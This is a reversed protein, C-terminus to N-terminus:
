ALSPATSLVSAKSGSTVFRSVRACLVTSGALLLAGVAVHSTAVQINRSTWVTLAGLLFQVFVLVLLVLAPERLRSDRYTRFVHIALMSLVVAVVVAGIRHFTHFLIQHGGMPPLDLDARMMNMERVSSESLSPWIEGYSLPFDPIALGSGTHRMVAGLILQVLVVAVAAYSLRLTTSSKTEVLLTGRKWSSSTAIAIFVTLSFFCQAMTAHTVSIPTPLLFLVTLGGLIGQTVVALWAIVGLVKMWSREETKWLVIALITTLIGVFTAVM